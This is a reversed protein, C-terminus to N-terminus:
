PKAAPPEPVPPSPPAAQKKKRVIPKRPPGNQIFCKEPDADRRACYDPDPLAPRTPEAAASISAIAGLGIALIITTAIWM